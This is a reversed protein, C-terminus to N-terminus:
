PACHPKQVGPKRSAVCASSSRVFLGSRALDLVREGTM